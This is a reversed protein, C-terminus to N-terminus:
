AHVAGSEKAKPAILGRGFWLADFGAKYHEEFKRAAAPTMIYANERGTWRDRAFYAALCAARTKYGTDSPCRVAIMGKAYRAPAITYTTM